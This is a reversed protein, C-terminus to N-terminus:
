CNMVHVHDCLVRELVFVLFEGVQFCHCAFGLGWNLGTHGMEQKLIRAPNVLLPCAGTENGYVTQIFVTRSGSYYILLAVPLELHHFWVPQLLQACFIDKVVSQATCVFLLHVM